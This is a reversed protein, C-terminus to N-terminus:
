HLFGRFGADVEMVVSKIEKKVGSLSVVGTAYEAMVIRVKFEVSIKEM